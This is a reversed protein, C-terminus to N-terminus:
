GKRSRPEGCTFSTFLHNQTTPDVSKQANRPLRHNFFSSIFYGPYAIDYRDDYLFGSDWISFEIIVMASSSDM